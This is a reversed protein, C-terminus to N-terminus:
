RLREELEDLADDDGLGVAHAEGERPLAALGKAAATASDSCKIPIGCMSVEGNAEARLAQAGEKRGARGEELRRARAGPAIARPHAAIRM